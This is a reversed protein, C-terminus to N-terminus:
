SSPHLFYKAMSKKSFIDFKITFHRYIDIASLSCSFKEMFLQRKRIHINCYMQLELM